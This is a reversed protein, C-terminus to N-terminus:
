DRRTMRRTKRRGGVFEKPKMMAMYTDISEQVVKRSERYIYIRQLADNRKYVAQSMKSEADRELTKRTNNNTGEPIVLPKAELEELVELAKKYDEIAKSSQAIYEEQKKLSAELGKEITSRKTPDLAWYASSCSDKNEFLWIKYGLSKYYKLDAASVEKVIVTNETFLPTLGMDTFLKRAKSEFNYKPAVTQINRMFSGSQFNYMINNRTKELEGGMYVKKIGVRDAIQIHRSGFELINRVPTAFFGLDSQLWAYIGDPASAFNKATFVPLDHQITRRSRTLNGKTPPEQIYVHYTNGDEHIFPFCQKRGQKYALNPFEEAQVYREHESYPPETASGEFLM